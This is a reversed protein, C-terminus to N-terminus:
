YCFVDIPPAVNCTNTACSGGGAGTNGLISRPFPVTATFTMVKNAPTFTIVKNAPLGDICYVGSVDSPASLGLVGTADSARVVVGPYPRSPSCQYVVGTVCATNGGGTSPRIAVVACPSGAAPTTVTVAPYGAVLVKVSTNEPALLQFVGNIDTTAFGGTTSYALANAVPLGAADKVDGGICSLATVLVINPVPQAGGTACTTQAASSTVLLPASNAVLGGLTLSATLSTISSSRVQVCYNGNADTPIAYSHGAYDVGYGEVSAGAIPIGNKDVVKGSIATSNLSQDSNWWTFHKVSAFVALRGATTTSPGVAGTGEEQWLGNALNFYWLPKIYGSILPTNIPLLLEIDATAGPKLNVPLGNQTLTFDAMSFSELTVRRGNVTRASFDGPAAAIERTSVDIPSIVVDVNGSVTLSNAPFTVKFGSESLVGGTATNLTQSAGSKLMSKSLTAQSLKKSDHHDEHRNEDDDRDDQDDKERAEKRVLSVTGQTPAYGAKQFSVLVRPKQKVGTLVYMGGPNTAVGLVGKVSVTVGSIPIGDTDVVQGVITGKSAAYVPAIFLGMFLVLLFKQLRSTINNKLM